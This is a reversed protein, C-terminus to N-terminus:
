RTPCITNCNYGHIFRSRNSVADIVVHYCPTVLSITMRIMTVPLSSYLNAISPSFRKLVKDFIHSFRFFTFRYIPNIVVSVIALFVTSPRGFFLLRVISSAIMRYSEVSSSLVYSLPSIFKSYLSGGEHHSDVRVAPTNLISKRLYM